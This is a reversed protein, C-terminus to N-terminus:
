SYSIKDISRKEKNIAPPMGPESNYIIESSDPGCRLILNGITAHMLEDFTDRFSLAFKTREAMVYLSISCARLDDLGSFLAESVAPRTHKKDDGLLKRRMDDRNRHLWLCYILTVGAIFTTHINIISHGNVTKQHFAKISQCIQGAAAQCERFLRDEPDLLELFPQILNRVSRYYYVSLTENEIGRKFGQCEKRWDQLEQFFKEVEPLRDRTVISASSLIKLQEIFRAEIRRIKISQNIFTTGNGPHIAKSPEYDFLPLNPDAKSEKLIFPKSVAIAISKELLYACWFCRMKRDKMESDINMYSKSRHLHSSICAKMADQIVIYLSNSDKDTRILLFCLLILIEIKRLPNITSKFLVIHRLASSFFRYPHPGRYKGTTKHLMTSIAYILFIRACNFHYDYENMNQANSTYYDNHFRFVEAENLLPFKYQLLAFYIDLCQKSLKVDMNFIPEYKMFDKLNYNGILSKSYKEENNSMFTQYPQSLEYDYKNFPAESAPMSRKNQQSENSGGPNTTVSTVIASDKDNSSKGEPVEPLMPSIKRYKLAKVENLTLDTSHALRRTKEDLLKELQKVKKELMVTYDDKVNTKNNAGYRPPQVCQVNAKICNTCSPLRQDCKQKRKQCLYCSTSRGKKDKIPKPVPKNSGSGSGSDSEKSPPHQHAAAPTSATSSPM